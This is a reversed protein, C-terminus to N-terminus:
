IEDRMKEQTEKVKWGQCISIQKVQPLNLPLSKWLVTLFNYQSAIANEDPLFPIM